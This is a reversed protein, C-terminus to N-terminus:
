ILKLTSQICFHSENRVDGEPQMITSGFSEEPPTDSDSIWKKDEEAMLQDGDNDKDADESAM